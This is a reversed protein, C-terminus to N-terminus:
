TKRNKLDVTESRGELAVQFGELVAARVAKSGEGYKFYSEIMSNLTEHVIAKVQREWPYNELAKTIEGELAEGLESGSAGIHSIISHRMHEVEIRLRPMADYDM